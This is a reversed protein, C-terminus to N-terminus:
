LADEIDASKGIIKRLQLMATYTCFIQKPKSGPLNLFAKLAQKLDTQVLGIKVDDYQLRLAMDYARVGSVVSVNKLTTFNVDWLWSMDRGDAYQDNIAIMIDSGHDLQSALALRFGSPNKVLILELNKGNVTINEGRGFAPEVNALADLLKSSDATKGLVMRAIVLAAAGNLINHAGGLRLSTKAPKGDIRYTATKNTFSILEVDAGPTSKKVRKAGHLEDDSPFKDALKANYGFYEIPATLKDQAIDSILPDDRNLVVGGTTAKAVTALLQATKDIEGFRDLQDRLVNLLVSYTPKVQKVFQVAHAEDLELVAIDADLKFHHIEGLLASVIGRTFNSGTRNTFVKLGHSELLEVVMKTTTTKGNTGSVVIVGHSLDGLTQKLFEPDVKEVMLGPFASGGGHLRTASRIIKGFLVTSKKM